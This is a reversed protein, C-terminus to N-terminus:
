EGARAVMLFTSLLGYRVFCTPPRPVTEVPIEQQGHNPRMTSLPLRTAQKQGTVDGQRSGTGVRQFNDQDDKAGATRPIHNNSSSSAIGQQQSPMAKATHAFNPLKGFHFGISRARHSIKSSAENNRACSKDCYNCAELSQGRVYVMIFFIRRKQM